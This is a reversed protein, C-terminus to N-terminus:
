GEGGGGAADQHPPPLDRVSIAIAEDQSVLDPLRCRLCPEFCHSHLRTHGRHRLDHVLLLVRVRGGAGPRHLAVGAVADLQGTQVLVDQILDLDQGECPDTVSAAARRGNQLPGQVVTFTSNELM